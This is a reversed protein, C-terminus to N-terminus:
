SRNRWWIDANLLAAYTTWALYPLLLGAALRHRKGFERITIAIALWLACIDLLALAPRRVGFFLLAWALNLGLQVSYSTLAPVDVGDHDDGSRWVLWAAVAQQAYLISWVPGFAMDPPSWRPRALSRYWGLRRWAVFGGTAAVAGVTAFSSAFTGARVVPSSPM